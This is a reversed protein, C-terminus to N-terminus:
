LKTYNEGSLTPARLAPQILSSYNLLWCLLRVDAVTQTKTSFISYFPSFFSQNTQQKICASRICDYGIIVCEYLIYLLRAYFCLIHRVFLSNNPLFTLSFYLVNFVMKQSTKKQFHESEKMQGSVTLTQGTMSSSFIFYRFLEKFLNLYFHFVMAHM